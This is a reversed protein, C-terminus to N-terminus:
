NHVVRRVGVLRGGYSSRSLSVVEVLRGSNPAHVMRGRGVYIGVHGLGYFFLLDGPRMRSRAVRRGQDYLAYSSHPLEIGLRGYAWYVLGSCDFGSAPSAGGWRYPVGVGKLAITVAREGVTPMRVPQEIALPTGIRVDEPSPGAVPLLLAPPGSGACGLIFAAFAFVLLPSRLVTPV